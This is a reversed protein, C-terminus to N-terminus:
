GQPQEDRKEEMQWVNGWPGSRVRRRRPDDMTAGNLSLRIDTNVHGVQYYSHEVLGEGQVVPTCDVQQVKQQPDRASSSGLMEQLALAM